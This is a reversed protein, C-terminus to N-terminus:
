WRLVRGGGVVEGGEGGGVRVVGVIRVVESGEGGGVRVVGVTRVKYRELYGMRETIAKEM